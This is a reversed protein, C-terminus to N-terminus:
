LATIVQKLFSFLASDKLLNKLLNKFTLYPPHTTVNLVYLLLLLTLLNIYMSFSLPM